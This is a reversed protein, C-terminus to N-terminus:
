GAGPGNLEGDVADAQEIEERSVGLLYLIADLYPVSVSTDAAARVMAKANFAIGLGATALMDLDNAGDGVAVTQSLPVGSIEAFYRLAAAKGARDIVPGVLGGTFRGDKAELTNAASFDLGLRSVLEDTIQTFGGSVIGTVCGLRNLTRVLTRAGPTLVLHDRVHDVVSVDLGALLAVRARLAEEFDLRGSMAEETIRAVEGQVGAHAALLDIVEGRILTSDVDLVVLRKARHHLGAAQVAVDIQSRAAEAGLRMKLVGADARSVDFQYSVVPYNSLRLIRDINAGCSGIAGTVGALVEPGLDAGLVRVHFRRDSRSGPTPGADTDELQADDAQGEEYPAEEGVMDRFETTLGLRRAQESIAARASPGTDSGRVLVGLLLRGRIGVQEVDVVSWGQRAISGLLASAQGPADPGTFTILLDKQDGM